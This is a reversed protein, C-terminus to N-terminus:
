RVEEMSTTLQERLVEAAAEPSVPNIYFGTGWEFGAVRTLRPLFEWHWHYDYPLTGWYDPRGPRPLPNPATQLVFNYAPQGLLSKLVILVRKVVVALDRLVEDEEEAFDHCHRKPFFHLEYPFRAAFPSLVLIHESELVVRKQLEREQYLLDCFLCREKDLYYQRAATLKEKPLQPVIPLAIIQSHPHALSAGAQAGYNRFVLTYRFRKDARLARLRAQYALFVHYLQEVPFADWDPHTTDPTEIIVEHAGVGDMLDFLGLGRRNLEGDLKLAPFKNPVVRVLWGPTNPKSGDLRIAFVEPPTRDENNPCLPCSKPSVEVIPSETRFDSPRQGREAAIIVWRQVVPDKRLEPM